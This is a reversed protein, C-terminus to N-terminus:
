NSIQGGGCDEVIYQAGSPTVVAESRAAPAPAPLVYGLGGWVWDEPLFRGRADPGADLYQVWLRCNEIASLLVSAAEEAGGHEHALDEPVSFDVSGDENESKIFENRMFAGMSGFFRAYVRLPEAISGGRVAGVIGAWGEDLSRQLEHEFGLYRALDSMGASALFQQTLMLDGVSARRGGGWHWLAYFAARPDAGIEQFGGRVGEIAEILEENRESDGNSVWDFEARYAGEALVRWDQTTLVLPGYRLLELQSPLTEVLEQATGKWTGPVRAIEEVAEPCLALAKAAVQDGLRGDPGPDEARQIELFRCATELDVGAKYLDSYQGMALWGCRNAVAFINSDPAAGRRCEDYLLWAVHLDSEDSHRGRRRNDDTVLAALQAPLPFQNTRKQAARKARMPATKAMKARLEDAAQAADRLSDPFTGNPSLTVGESGGFDLVVTARDDTARQSLAVEQGLQDWDIEVDVDIEDLTGDLLQQTLRELSDALTRAEDSSLGVRSNGATAPTCVFAVGEPGCRPHLRLSTIRLPATTVSSEEELSNRPAPVDPM